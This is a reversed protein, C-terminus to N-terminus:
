FWWKVTIFFWAVDFETCVQTM